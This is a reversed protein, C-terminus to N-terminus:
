HIMAVRNNIRCYQPISRAFLSELDVLFVHPFFPFRQRKTPEDLKLCLDPDKLKGCRSLRSNVERSLRLEPRHIQEASLSLAAKDANTTMCQKVSQRPVCVAAPNACYRMRSVVVLM